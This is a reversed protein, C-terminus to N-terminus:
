RGALMMNTQLFIKKAYIETCCVWVMYAEFHRCLVYHHHKLDMDKTSNAVWDWGPGTSGHVMCVVKTHCWAKTVHVSVVAVGRILCVVMPVLICSYAWACAYAVSRQHRKQRAVPTTAPISGKWWQQPWSSPQGRMGSAMTLCLLFANGRCHRLISQLCSSVCSCKYLFLTHPTPHPPAHPLWVM